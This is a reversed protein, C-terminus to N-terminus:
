QPCTRSTPPPCNFQSRPCWLTCLETAVGGKAHALDGSALDRITEKSLSLPKRTKKM